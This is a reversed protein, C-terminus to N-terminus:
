QYKGELRGRKKYERAKGSLIYERNHHALRCKDSCYKSERVTKSIFFLNCDKCRKLKRRDNNILFEVLSYGIISRIFDNFKDRLDEYSERENILLYKEASIYCSKEIIDGILSARDQVCSYANQIMWFLDGYLAIPVEMGPELTIEKSIWIGQDIDKQTLVHKRMTDRYPKGSAIESLMNVFAIQECEVCKLREDKVSNKQKIMVDYCYRGYKRCFQECSNNLYGYVAAFSITRPCWDNCDRKFKELTKYIDLYTEKSLHYYIVDNIIKKVMQQGRMSDIVPWIENFVKKLNKPNDMFSNNAYTLFITDLMTGGLLGRAMALM